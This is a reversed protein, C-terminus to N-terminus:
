QFHAFSWCQSHSSFFFWCVLPFPHKIIQHPTPFAKRSLRIAALPRMLRKCNEAFFQSETCFDLFQEMWCNYWRQNPTKIDFVGFEISPVCRKGRLKARLCTELIILSFPFCYCFFSVLFFFFFHFDCNLTYFKDSLSCTSAAVQKQSWLRVDTRNHTQHFLRCFRHYWLTDLVDDIQLM